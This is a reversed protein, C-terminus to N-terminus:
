SLSFSVLWVKSSGEAKMQMKISIANFQLALLIRLAFARLGDVDIAGDATRINSIIQTEKPISPLISWSQGEIRSCCLDAYRGLQSLRSPSVCQSNTILDSLSTLTSVLGGSGKIVM